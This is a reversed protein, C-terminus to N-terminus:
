MNLTANTHKAGGAFPMVEVTEFCDTEFISDEKQVRYGGLPAV